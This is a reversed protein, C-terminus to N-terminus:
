VKSYTKSKEKGELTQKARITVLIIIGGTWRPAQVLDCANAM